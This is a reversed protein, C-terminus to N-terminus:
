QQRFQMASLVLSMTFVQNTPRLPSNITFEIQSEKNVFVQTNLLDSDEDRAECGYKSGPVKQKTLTFELAGVARTYCFVTKDFRLSLWGNTSSNAKDAHPIVIRQPLLVLSAEKVNSVGSIIQNPEM